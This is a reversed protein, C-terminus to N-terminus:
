NTAVIHYTYTTPALACRMYGDTACDPVFAITLDSSGSKSVTFVGYFTNSFENEQDQADNTKDTLLNQDYSVDPKSGYQRSLNLIIEEGVGVSITEGNKANTLTVSTPYHTRHTAFLCLAAVIVLEIALFIPLSFKRLNYM